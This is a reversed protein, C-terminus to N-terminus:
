TEYEGTKEDKEDRKHFCNGCWAEDMVRNMFVDKLEKESVNQYVQKAFQLLWMIKEYNIGDERNKWILFKM